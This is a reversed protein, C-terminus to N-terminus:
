TFSLDIGICAFDAHNLASHVAQEMTTKCVVKTPSMLKDSCPPLLAICPGSGMTYTM